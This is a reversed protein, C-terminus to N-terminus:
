FNRQKRRKFFGIELANYVDKDIRLYQYNDEVTHNNFNVQLVIYDINKYTSKSEKDLIKIM